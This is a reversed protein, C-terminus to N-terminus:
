KYKNASSYVGCFISQKRNWWDSCIGDAPNINKCIKSTKICIESNSTISFYGTTPHFYRTSHQKIPLSWTYTRCSTILVSEEGRKMLTQSSLVGNQKELWPKVQSESDVTLDIFSGFCCVSIWGSSSFKLTQHFM